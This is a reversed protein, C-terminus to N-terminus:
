FNVNLSFGFSRPSPMNFMEFAGAGNATSLSVDPDVPSDKYIFFLNRAIFSLTLNKNEGILNRFTYGLSLERLRFNTGNYIYQSSAPSAGGIGKYYSAIPVVRNSGDPLYMGLQSGYDSAILNHQEAYQRAEATRESLGSGDLYAETFSIVKGGIRGNILFFLSFDKYRITNSWGMQWKSNMNGAYVGYQKNAETELQPRGESDLVYHGKADRKFDTVYMDGISGGKRYRVRVGMLDNYILKESGDEEYSTELIKNDNFSVNYSTKWSWNKGFRFNYGVTAEFGQNRVKGSNVPESLGSANTAIMYLDQMKSNYYTLDLNLRNDLFMMEVGTEVSKTKEPLPNSFRAYMSPSIVGTKLDETGKAYVQNPISNGVESYSLRYKLYSFWDPLEVLSSVIANAGVGFYGYNDPTGRDSFQKYARYWDRRYSGDIYVKEQWGLQATVLAAKDWDTLKTTKTASTGGANTQFLNVRTSLMQNNPDIYTAVVDTKQTETERLHGVWGATASVSFDGFTKNYSLLYDTYIENATEIDKWYNGYDDMTSPLFTTAYRRSDKKYKTHDISVRAQFSLGDYIDARGTITGYFRDEKVKNRNQNMLWYPNNQRAGMFAWNQMPGSLGVRTPTLEYMGNDKNLVYISKENSNWTGDIAYNNRYYGIDINRPMMYMHYIPNGTTGGGPRNRTVTQVYNMSMDFHLRKFFEYSQRFAFSNRNYSNSEIMGKAHSNGFSFYTQIKDTGGSLAISNNATLGTRYFDDLDDSASNRLYVEHTRDAGFQNGDLPVNIVLNDASRASVKDGWSDVALQDGISSSTVAAGYINQIKPTLLPTDFTLNSSFNISLKGEKGRKTTIMVVGNAAASGYLAAANAGKLVNISEIDDPNIMSLPDSGEGVGSSTMAALDSMQGRTNNTMPVGDVVILPTSSGFVSKNGRLIIKSAGGAGGASPTIVVGSVKGEISNAVNPDQVRNLDDSKIQQTAYTLSKEKRLIGMATVVVENLAHSEEKLVVNIEKKGGVAITQSTYGVYSFILTPNEVDTSITYKGDMDTMTGQTSNKLAISVGILPEGKEDTVVGKVTTKKQAVEGAAAGKTEAVAEGTSAYLSVGQLLAASILLVARLEAFYNKRM